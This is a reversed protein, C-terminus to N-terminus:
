AIVTEPENGPVEITIKMGPMLVIRKPLVISEPPVGLLRAVKARQQMSMGHKGTEWASVHTQPAGVLRGLETQTLGRAKRLEQLTVM